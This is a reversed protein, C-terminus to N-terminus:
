TISFTLLFIISVKLHYNKKVSGNSNMHTFMRLRGPSALLGNQRPGLLSRGQPHPCLGGPAWSGTPMPSPGTVVHCHALVHMHRARSLQCAVKSLETHKVTMCVTNYFGRFVYWTCKNEWTQKRILKQFLFQTLKKPSSYCENGEDTLTGRHSLFSVHIM